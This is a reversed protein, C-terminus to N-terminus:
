RIRHRPHNQKSSDAGNITTPRLHIAEYAGYVFFVVTMVWACAMSSKIMGIRPYYVSDGQLFGNAFMLECSVGPVSAEFQSCTTALGSTTLSAAILSLLFSM